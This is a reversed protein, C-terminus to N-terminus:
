DSPWAGAAPATPAHDPGPVLITTGKTLLLGDQHDLASKAGAPLRANAASVGSRFSFYSTLLWGTVFLLFVGLGIAFWTAWRRRRRPQPIPRKPPGGTGDRAPRPLGPRKGKVRGGRYVRYPKEGEPM